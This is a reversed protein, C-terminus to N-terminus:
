LVVRKTKVGRICLYLVLGTPGLMFTLLLCPMLLFRNIGQEKADRVEWSGVFLDFALYHVWGATLLYPNSFLAAVGTVSGFGGGEPVVQIQSVFLGLYVAGLVAPILTSTILRTTWKWNPFLLLLFWGPLVLTNCISFITEAAM